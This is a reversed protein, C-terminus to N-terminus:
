LREFNIHMSMYKSRITLAAHRRTREDRGNTQSPTLGGGSCKRLLRVIMNIHQPPMSMAFGASSRQSRPRRNFSAACTNFPFQRLSRGSCKQWPQQLPGSPATLRMTLAAQSKSHEM